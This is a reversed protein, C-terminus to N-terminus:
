YWLCIPELPAPAWEPEWESAWEPAWPLAVDLLRLLLVNAFPPEDDASAFVPQDETTTQLCTFCCLRLM